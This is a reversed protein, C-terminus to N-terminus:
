QFSELATKNNLIPVPDTGVDETTQNESLDALKGDIAKDELKSLQQGLTHLVQETM